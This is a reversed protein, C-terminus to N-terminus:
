VALGLEIAQRREIQKRRTSDCSWCVHKRFKQGNYSVYVGIFRM